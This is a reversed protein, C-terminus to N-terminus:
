SHFTVCFGRILQSTLFVLNDLTYVATTGLTASVYFPILRM